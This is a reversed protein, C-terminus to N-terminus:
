GCWCAKFKLKLGGSVTGHSKPKSIVTSGQSNVVKNAHQVQVGSHEFDITKDLLLHIM